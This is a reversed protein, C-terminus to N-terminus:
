LREVNSAWKPYQLTMDDLCSSLYHAEEPHRQSFVAWGKFRLTEPMEVLGTIADWFADWNMGYFSPFELAEKLATHLEESSSVNTLDIEIVPIRDEMKQRVSLVDV